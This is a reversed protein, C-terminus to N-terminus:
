AAEGVAWTLSLWPAFGRDGTQGRKTGTEDTSMFPFVSPHSIGPPCDNTLSPGPAPGIIGSGPSDGSSSDTKAQLPGLSEQEGSARAALFRTIQATNLNPDLCARVSMPYPVYHDFDSALFSRTQGSTVRHSGWPGSDCPILFAYLLDRFSMFTCFHIRSADLFPYSTDLCWNQYFRLLDRLNSIILRAGPM